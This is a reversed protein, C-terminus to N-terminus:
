SCQKLEEIVEMTDKYDYPDVYVDAATRLVVYSQRYGCQTCHGKTPMRVFSFEECMRCKTFCPESNQM